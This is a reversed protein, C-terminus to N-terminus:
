TIFCNIISVVYDPMDIATPCAMIAAHLNAQNTLNFASYMEVLVVYGYLFRIFYYNKNYKKIDNFIM